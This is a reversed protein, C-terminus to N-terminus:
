FAAIRELLIDHVVGQADLQLLVRAQEAEPVSAFMASKTFATLATHNVALQAREGLVAQQSPPLHGIHGLEIHAAEFAEKSKWETQGDAAKVVYGAQGDHEQEWATVVQPISVFQQTM